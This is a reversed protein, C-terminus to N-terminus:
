DQYTHSHEVFSVIVDKLETLESDKASAVTSFESRLTGLQEQLRRNKIALQIEASFGSFVINAVVVLLVMLIQILLHVSTFWEGYFPVFSMFFTTIGTVILRPKNKLVEPWIEKM